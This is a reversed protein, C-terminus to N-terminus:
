VRTRHGKKKSWSLEYRLALSIAVALFWPIYILPQQLLGGTTCSYIVLFAEFSFSFYAASRLISSSTLVTISKALRFSIVLSTIVLLVFPVLGVIGVDHLIQFIENHAYISQNGGPWTYRYTAWGNGIFPSDLWGKIATEWLLNRGSTTDTVDNAKFSTITESLREFSEAVGPIFITALVAIVIAIIAAVVFKLAKGRVNTIAFLCILAFVGFLLHARKQTLVLGLLFLLTLILWRRRKGKEVGFVFAASLLFGFTMMLGNDSYHSTLGSQYGIATREGAFFWAKVTSVYLDPVVYFLLTAVLHALLMVECCLLATKLWRTSCAAMCAVLAALPLALQPFSFTGGTAYRDVMAFVAFVFWGFGVGMAFLDFKRNKFFLAGTLIGGTIFMINRINYPLLAYFLAPAMLCCTATILLWEGKVGKKQPEIACQPTM